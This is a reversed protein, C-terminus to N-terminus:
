LERGSCKFKTNPLYNKVFDSCTKKLDSNNKAEILVRYLSSGSRSIEEICGFYKPFFSNLLTNARTKNRLAIVQIFIRNKEYPCAFRDLKNTNESPESPLWTEEYRMLATELTRPIIIIELPTYYEKNKPIRAIGRHPSLIRWSAWNQNKNKALFIKIEDGPKLKASYPICVRGENDTKVPENGKSVPKSSIPIGPRDIKRGLSTVIMIHADICSDSASVTLIPSYLCLCLITLRFIM